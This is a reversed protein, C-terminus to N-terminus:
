FELILICLENENASILEEVQSRSTLQVVAVRFDIKSDANGMTFYDLDEETNQQPHPLRPSFLFSFFFVLKGNTPKRFCDCFYTLSGTLQGAYANRM